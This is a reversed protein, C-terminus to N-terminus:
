PTAWIEIPMLFIKLFESVKKFVIQLFFAKSIKSYNMTIGFKKAHTQKKLVRSDFQYHGQLDLKKTFRKIKNEM